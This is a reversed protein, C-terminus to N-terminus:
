TRINNRRKKLASNRHHTPPLTGRCRHPSHTRGKGAAQQPFPGSGVRKGAPLCWNKGLKGWICYRFRSTQDCRPMLRPLLYSISAHHWSRALSELCPGLGLSLESAIHCPQELLEPLRNGGGFFTRQETRSSANRQPTYTCILSTAPGSSPLSSHNKARILCNEDQLLRFNGPLMM